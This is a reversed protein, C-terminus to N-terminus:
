YEDSDYFDHLFDEYSDDSDDFDLFEMPDFYIPLPVQIHQKLRPCIKRLTEISDRILWESTRLTELCPNQALVKRVARDSMAQNNSIDLYRLERFKVGNELTDDTVGECSSLTLSRLAKINSISFPTDNHESPGIFGCDSLNDDTDTVTLVRLSLFNRCVFEMGEDGICGGCKSLCLETLISANLASLTDPTIPPDFGGATGIMELRVNKVKPPMNSLMAHHSDGSSALVLRSYRSPRFKEMSFTELNVLEKLFTWTRRIDKFAHTRM